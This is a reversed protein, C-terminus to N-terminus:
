LKFHNYYLNSHVQRLLHTHYKICMKLQVWCMKEINPNLSNLSIRKLYCNVMEIQCILHVIYAVYLSDVAINIVSAFYGVGSELVYVIQYYPTVMLNVPQWIDIPLGGKGFLIPKLPIIMSTTTIALWRYISLMTKVSVFIHNLQNKLKTEMRELLWFEKINKNITILVDSQVTLM